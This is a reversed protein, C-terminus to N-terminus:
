ISARGVGRLVLFSSALSSCNSSNQVLISPNQNPYITDSNNTSICLCTFQELENIIRRDCLSSQRSSSICVIPTQSQISDCVFGCQSFQANSLHLKGVNSGPVMRYQSTQRTELSLRGCHQIQRPYSSNQSYHQTGPVLPPKGGQKNIYSVVTTNDTSTMVCSHHIYHIAVKLAFHIAMIELINICLQSQDETWSGHFSLRVPKLHAGWEYHSAETFLFANPDPPHIFTGQTFRNIDIWWKLHFRIMSTIPVQHDLSLTPPRWVSLLCM